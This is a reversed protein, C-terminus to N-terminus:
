PQLVTPQADSGCFLRKKPHVTTDYLQKLEDETAKELSSNELSFQQNLWHGGGYYSVLLIRGGILLADWNHGALNAAHARARPSYDRFVERWREPTCGKDSHGLSLIEVPEGV